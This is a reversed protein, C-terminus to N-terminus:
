ILRPLSISVKDFLHLQTPFRLEHRDLRDISQLKFLKVSFSPQCVYACPHSFAHTTTVAAHHLFTLITTQRICIEFEGKDVPEVRYCGEWANDAVKSPFAKPGKGKGGSGKKKKGELGAGASKTKRGALPYTGKRKVGTGGARNVKPLGSPASRTSTASPVGGRKRPTATYTGRRVKPSVPM